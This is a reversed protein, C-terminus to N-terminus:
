NTKQELTEKNSQEQLKAAQAQAFKRDLEEQKKEKKEKKTKAAAEKEVKLREEEEKSVKDEWVEFEKLEGKRRIQKETLDRLYYLRSKRTKVSKTKEIKVITPSHVPFTREVGIGFSVRRVTFSGQTSTKSGHTKIVIGEFIQIREKKGERVKQHVKIVDGSKIQPINTKLYKKEVEAVLNMNGRSQKVLLHYLM